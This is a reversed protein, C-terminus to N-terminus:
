RETKLKEYSTKLWQLLEENTLNYHIKINWIDTFNPYRYGNEYSKITFVSLGVRKGMEERSINLQNRKEKLINNM